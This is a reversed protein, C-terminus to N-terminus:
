SSQQQTTFTYLRGQAGIWSSEHVTTSDTVPQNNVRVTTPSSLLTPTVSMDGSRFEFSVGEFGALALEDGSVRNRRLLNDLPTRQLAGFDVVVQGDETSLYGFPTPRTLWYVLLVLIVAGLVALIVILPLPVVLGQDVPPPPAPPRPTPAPTPQVPAVVPLPTPVPQLSSVVVSDTSYSFQRGAYELNLNVIVTALTESEPTYFLDFVAAKGASIFYQVVVEVPGPAGQNTAVAATLQDTQVSFPQDGVSVHLTAIKTRAGPKITDIQEPTIAVSPFQRAEFSSQTTISHAIGPWSLQLEVSYTGESDVPPITTSFVGDRAVSDGGIGGDTLEYLISSGGPDAIRATMAADVAAPQDGDMVAAALTVPAGVPVAGTSRLEIRYRNASYRNASMMGSSGKVEVRWTGPAPDVLEWMLVHPLDTLSSSTRDGASGEFGDPNTLRFSTLADERFFLLNLEGTGPAVDVDVEFVADPSLDTEGMKTLTGKGELRLIRDTLHEFGDPVALEFSEGDTENSIRNLILMLGPDTGPITFNSVSWGVEKILRVVQGLHDFETDPDISTTSGTVLYITTDPGANIGTLHNYLEVLSPRLDLAESQAPLEIDGELQALLDTFGDDGADLPGYLTTPDDTFVFQFAQGDKLHFLLGLLSKVLEISASDSSITERDIAIVTLRDPREQAVIGTASAALAILAVVTALVLRTQSTRM